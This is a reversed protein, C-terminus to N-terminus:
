SESEKQRRPNVDCQSVQQGWTSRLLRLRVEKWGCTGRYPHMERVELLLGPNARIPESLAYAMGSGIVTALPMHHRIPWTQTM